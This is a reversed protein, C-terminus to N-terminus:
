ISLMIKKMNSYILIDDIFLVLIKELYPHFIGNMYEMFVGPANTVDFSMVSYEYHSYRKRFATKQIDKAKM